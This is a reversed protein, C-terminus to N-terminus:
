PTQDDAFRVVQVTLAGDVEVLQKDLGLLKAKGMTAAVAASCQASPMSTLAGRRAEELERLLDDVTLAHRQRAEAKLADIMQSVDPTISLKWASDRITEPKMRETSYAARYADALSMGEAVCRAFKERKPTM